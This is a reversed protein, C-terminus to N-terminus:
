AHRPCRMFARAQIVSAAMLVTKKRMVAVVKLESPTAKGAIIASRLHLQPPAPLPKESRATAAPMVAVIGAQNIRRKPTRVVKTTPLRTIATAKTQRISM